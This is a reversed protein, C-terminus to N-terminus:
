QLPVRFQGYGGGRTAWFVHAQEAGPMYGMIEGYPIQVEAGGPVTPWRSTDPSLDLLAGTTEEVVFYRVASSSENRLVLSGAESRVALPSDSGPEGPGSLLQCAGLFLTVLLLMPTAIRKM